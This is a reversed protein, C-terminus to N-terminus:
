SNTNKNIQCNLELLLVAMAHESLMHHAVFFAAAIGNKMTENPVQIFILQCHM